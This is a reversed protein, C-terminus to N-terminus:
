TCMKRSIATYMIVYLVRKLQIGFSFTTYCRQCSLEDGLLRSEVSSLANKNKISINFYVM